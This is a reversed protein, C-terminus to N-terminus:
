HKKNGFSLRDSIVNAGDGRVSNEDLRTNKLPNLSKGLRDRQQQSNVDNQTNPGQPNRLNSNNTNNNNQPFQSGGQNLIPPNQNPRLGQQQNNAQPALGQAGNYPGAQNPQGQQGFQQPQRSQQAPAQARAGLGGLSM